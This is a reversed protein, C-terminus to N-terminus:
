ERARQQFPQLRHPMDPVPQLNTRADRHNEHANGHNGAHKRRKGEPQEFCKRRERGDSLHGARFGGLAWGVAPQVRGVEGPAGPSMAIRGFYTNLAETSTRRLPVIKYRQTDVGANRSRLTCCACPFYVNAHQFPFRHPQIVRHLAVPRASNWVEDNPSFIM